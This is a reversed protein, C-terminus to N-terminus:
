RPLGARVVLADHDTYTTPELELRPSTLNGYAHQIGPAQTAAADTLTWHGAPACSTRRNVDGAFITPRGRTALVQGLEACQVSNTSGPAEGDTSLHSTCVDVRRATTVCLWRRQEVGSFVSFPADESALIAEKTLVANGFVGRGGPTRCPLEAGRYIVTAFRYHYGTRAAIEAVDGSCAENLTVANVDNAQIRAVTEDVINPYETGAYCGAYGSLCLNMQLLSYPPRAGHSAAEESPAEESPATAAAALGPFLLLAAAVLGGLISARLRNPSLRIM